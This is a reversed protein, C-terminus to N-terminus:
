GYPLKLSRRANIITTDGRPQLSVYLLLILEEQSRQSAPGPSVDGADADLWSPSKTRWILALSLTGLHPAM